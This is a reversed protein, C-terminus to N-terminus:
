LFVLKLGIVKRSRCVYPMGHCGTNPNGTCGAKCRCQPGNPGLSCEANQGCQQWDCPDLLILKQIHSSIYKRYIFM